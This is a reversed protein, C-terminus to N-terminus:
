NPLRHEDSSLLEEAILRSAPTELNWLVMLVILKLQDLSLSRGSAAMARDVVLERLVPDLVGINELHMVLGRCGADLKACEKAAYTRMARTPGPLPEHSRHPAHLMGALWSLAESIDSEEFGAASLKRVILENDQALDTRHCNEFLYVFIDYM